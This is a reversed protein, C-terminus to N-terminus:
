KTSVHDRARLSRTGLIVLFVLLLYASAAVITMNTLVALSQDIETDFESQDARILDDLAVEIREFAYIAQGPNRGVALAVADAQHQSSELQRIQKDVSLYESFADLVAEFAKEEGPYFHHNAEDAFYGQRNLPTGDRMASKTAAMVGADRLDASFLHNIKKFFHDALDGKDDGILYLSEDANAGYLVTRAASLTGIAPFADVVANKVVRQLNGLAFTNAGIIAIILATAVLMAPSLRRGYGLLTLQVAVIIALSIWGFVSWASKYNDGEFINHYVDHLEQSDVNRFQEASPAASEQLISSAKVFAQRGDSPGAAQVRVLAENYSSLAGILDALPQAEDDGHRV